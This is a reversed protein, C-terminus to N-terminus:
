KRKQSKALCEFDNWTKVNIEGIFAKVETDVFRQINCVLRRITNKCTKKYVFAVLYKDTFEIFFPKWLHRDVGYVHVKKPDLFIPNGWLESCNNLCEFISKIWCDFTEKSLPKSFKLILIVPSGFFKLFHKTDSTQKQIKM